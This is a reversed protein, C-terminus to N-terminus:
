EYDEKSSWRKLDIGHILVIFAFVELIAMVITVKTTDGIWSTSEDYTIEPNEPEISMYIKDGASMWKRSDFGRLLKTYSEGAYEYKIELDCYYVKISIGKRRSTRQTASDENEVNIVEAKIRETKLPIANPRFRFIAFALGFIIVMILGAKITETAQKSPNKGEM